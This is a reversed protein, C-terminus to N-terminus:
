PSSPTLPAAARARGPPGAEEERLCLRHSVSLAPLLPCSLASGSFPQSSPRLYLLLLLLSLGSSPSPPVQPCAGPAGVGCPLVPPCYTFEWAKGGRLGRGWGVGLCVEGRDEMNAGWAQHHQPFRQSPRETPDHHPAQPPPPTLPFDSSDPAGRPEPAARGAWGGSLERCHRSALARPGPVATAGWEPGRNLSPQAGARIRGREGESAQGSQRGGESCPGWDEAQWPLGKKLGM